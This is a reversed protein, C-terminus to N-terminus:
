YRFTSGSFQWEVGRNWTTSNCCFIMLGWAGYKQIKHSSNNLTRHTIRHVMNKFLKTKKLYNFVPRIGFLIFPVPILSGIFSLVTAHLPSLGLSIGIPIAGRLEIIPLASTLIVTLEKTLITKIMQLM